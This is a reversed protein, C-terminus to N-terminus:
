PKAQVYFMVCEEPRIRWMRYWRHIALRWDAAQWDQEYWDGDKVPRWMFKFTRM